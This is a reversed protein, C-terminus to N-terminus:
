GIDGGKVPIDSSIEKIMGKVEDIRDCVVRLDKLGTENVKLDIL